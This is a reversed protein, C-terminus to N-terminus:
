PAPDGCSPRELASELAALRAELAAIEKDQQQVLEYLAQTAALSVGDADVTTISKDSIGFGFAASFDQATPGIHRTAPDQGAYRWTSIPLQALQALIMQGDVPAFAAKADRDSLTAWSGSGPELLVGANPNGEADIGSILRVGGTARVAFENPAASSFPFENADAFLFTGGHAPDIGANRGAAVSYDGAAANFSGGPVSAFAGAASNSQGGAVSAYIGSASNNIGGNIAAHAASATNGAGGGVFAGFGSATNRTGGAVATNTDGATNYSGGSVTADFGNASNHSGGGVTAHKGGAVNGGGGGVTADIHSAVNGYGGGVTARTGSATNRNGGGVTAFEVSASNYSGGSVTTRAATAANHSGGGVTAGFPSVRNHLADEQLGQEPAPTLTQVTRERGACALLGGLALMILFMGSLVTGKRVM